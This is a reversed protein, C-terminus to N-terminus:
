DVQTVRYFLMSRKTVTDSNLILNTVGYVRAVPYWGGTLSTSAEILWNGPAGPTKTFQWMPDFVPPGSRTTAKVLRAPHDAKYEAEAKPSRLVTYRHPIKPLRAVHHAACGTLLALM